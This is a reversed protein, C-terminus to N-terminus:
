NIIDEVEYEITENEDSLDPVIIPTNYPVPELLAVYFVLNIYM